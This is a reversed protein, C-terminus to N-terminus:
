RLLTVRFSLQQHISCPHSVRCGRIRLVETRHHLRFLSSPFSLLSLIYVEPHGKLGYGRKRLPRVFLRSFKSIMLARLLRLDVWELWFGRGDRGQAVRM